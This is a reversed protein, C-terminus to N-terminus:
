ILYETFYYNGKNGVKFLFDSLLTNEFETLLSTKIEDIQKNKKQIQEYNSDNDYIKEIFDKLEQFTEIQFGKLVDYKFRCCLEKGVPMHNAISFELNGNYKISHTAEMILDESGKRYGKICVNLSRNIYNAVDAM